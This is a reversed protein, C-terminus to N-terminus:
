KITLFENLHFNESIEGKYPGSLYEVICIVGTRTVKYDSLIKVTGKDVKVKSGIKLGILKLHDITKQNEKKM